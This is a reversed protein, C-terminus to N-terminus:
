GCNPEVGGYFVYNILYVIDGIDVIGDNNIDSDCAPETGSYFVYNILLVIDGIDVVKDDNSDGCLCPWVWDVIKAYIDWNGRRTDQWTFFINSNNAAVAPLGQEYSSYLPNPILYNSQVPTGSSNYKQAYIDYNGNRNDEWSIVFNGLGDLGVAPNSQDATGVDDNVKFNTGLPTGTTNYRQAYIDFSYGGIIRDDEWTIVFNGSGDMAIAPYYQHATEIDDNVKFNAGLPTGSSNYKQAYIDYNGNRNDEWSIVFNGSGDAAITPSSQNATGVDDNVKFNTSLPIGSSNYRQAYIDLNGNRYDGWTIVFNGSGDLAMAPIFQDATGVDDNVKFNTGLPTCSSNYRQAYIDYNGNRYDEWTIVFKGSGAIAIVSRNQSATGADDNVKFNTSLPTGSSNHRRAYIDYNGSRGDQWTIVFNGSGDLAIAPYNQDTPGIDDNVGFNAGLPTCSSDYRQAYIDWYYGSRNDEWTIVFNGSGDMAIAPWYHDPPGANDNVKFNAGLPTGSFNYKQAYIDMRSYRHDEWTIVFNGSGDIAIAPCYQYATGVDDNVKFNTGLPTGSSNYRQAYVDPNGNRDDEWAIVFNGSGDATIAPGYGYQKATGVDDNVEFNTGLPAGSSNYRQAYIDWNGNRYDYWTMVFNGSGDIAIAPIVQDATGVDDNVKFNTSLPTGSSNYRQAYIDANVNRADAWTIVFNGSGDMAIGPAAQGSTGIDDNVKFNTGLPTGSSNYRQAYIDSNTISRYDYWAIVFNGSGDAAITPYGHVATGADDNVKFNTGLPAGSSNYRQAYIDPANTFSGNRYDSWTIVFNGSPDRAIAPCQQDSGDDNVLFDDTIGALAKQEAPTLFSSSSNVGREGPNPQFREERPLERDWNEALVPFTLFLFSFLLLFLFHFRKTMRGGRNKLVIKQFIGVVKFFVYYL